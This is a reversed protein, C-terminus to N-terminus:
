RGCGCGAGCGGSEEEEVEAAAAVPMLKDLKLSLFRAHHELHWTTYACITRVSIPGLTPHLAERDMQEESLGMLWDATWIRMTHTVAIFGAINAGPRPMEKPGPARGPQSLGYLNSDIFANEDWEALLPRDEGVARRMRHTNVIDADAVHGLLVRIPWRGVGAEPLFATDLDSESLLFVRRDFAEVGRRYRGVLEATPLKVMEEKTLEKLAVKEGCGCGGAGGAGGCCTASGKPGGKCCEGAALNQDVEGAAAGGVGTNSMAM